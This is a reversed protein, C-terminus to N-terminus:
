PALVGYANEGAVQEQISALENLLGNESDRYLVLQRIKLM